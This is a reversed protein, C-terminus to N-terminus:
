PAWLRNVLAPAYLPNAVADHANWLAAVDTGTPLPAVLSASANVTAVQQNPPVTFSVTGDGNQMPMNVAGFGVVLWQGAAV